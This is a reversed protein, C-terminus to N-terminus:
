EGEKLFVNIQNIVEALESLTAYKDAFIKADKRAQELLLDRKESVTLVTKINEFQGEESRATLTVFARTEKVEDGAPVTVVLNAIMITAQQQRYKEAAIKNNWEFANHLPADKPRSADVVNKATLGVTGELREFEKGAVEPSVKFFGTKWKYIMNGGKWAQWATGSRAKGAMGHRADGLRALGCSAQWVTGWGVKSVTGCWATGGM